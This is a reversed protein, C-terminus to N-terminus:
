IYIPPHNYYRYIIIVWGYIFDSIILYRDILYKTWSKTQISTDKPRNHIYLMYMYIQICINDVTPVPTSIHEIITNYKNYHFLFIFFLIFHFFFFFSFFLFFDSIIQTTQSLGQQWKLVLPLSIAYRIVPLPRLFSTWFWKKFCSVPKSFSVVEGEKVWCRLRGKSIRSSLPWTNERFLAPM